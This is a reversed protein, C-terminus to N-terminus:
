LTIAKGGAKEIKELASKSFANASIEISASLEGNGLIKLPNLKNKILSKKIFYDKGLGKNEIKGKDILKQLDGVNLISYEIRNINKFGFKPVRRQLPMQGGEFWARQKNGSRAKEGNHGRTSTGGFGSGQGRGVRKKKHRSGVSYKLNSLIDMINDTDQIFNFFDM